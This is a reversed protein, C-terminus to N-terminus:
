FKSIFSSVTLLSCDAIKFSEGINEIKFIPRNSIKLIKLISFISFMKLIPLQGNSVADDNM